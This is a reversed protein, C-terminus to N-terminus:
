KFERDLEDAEEIAHPNLIVIANLGTSQDYAAIRKLYSEVLQHCSVKGARIAAHTAAISTETVEFPPQTEATLGPAFHLAFFIAAFILAVTPLSERITIM